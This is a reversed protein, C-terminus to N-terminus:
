RGGLLEAVTGTASRAAEVPEAGRARAVLYAASFTDGAGTPDVDPDLEVAPVHETLSPTVVLAGRSGLTLVLEPVGLALLRDPDAGGALANAEEDDLKLITVYSLAPGVEGDTRVPGLTPRRVLGQGDVLLARGNEALAALTEPPFDSRVLAGVHVWRADGAGARADEASWPDGMADQLMLRRDGEYRFRYATTTSSEHWRVPLGFAELPRVLSDRDSAACSAVVVADAGLRALARAAYFVTGGPRPEAGAVVDRSLHGIAAIETV